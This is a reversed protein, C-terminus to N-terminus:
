YEDDSNYHDPQRWPQSSFSKSSPVDRESRVASSRVPAPPKQVPEPRISGDYGTMMSDGEKQQAWDPRQNINSASKARKLKYNILTSSLKKSHSPDGMDVSMGSEGRSQMLKHMRRARARIIEDDENDLYNNRVTDKVVPDSARWPPQEFPQSSKTKSRPPKKSM